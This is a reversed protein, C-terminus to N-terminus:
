RMAYDEVKLRHKILGFKRVIYYGSADVWDDVAGGKHEDQKEPKGHKDWGQVAFAHSLKPCKSKNIFYMDKSFMNNVSNIRDRVAGNIKPYNFSPAEPTRVEDKLIQIDTKSANSSDNDGSSDPYFEIEHDKYRKNIEIAIAYTDKPAFEEVAHPIGDREVHVTVGCGGVNFDLGIFLKEGRQIRERSNHRNADYFHYVKDTTLSVMKGRTFLNVLVSDYMEVIDDLYDPPLFPNDSTSAEILHYKGVRGNNILDYNGASDMTAKDICRNYLEWVYGETGYDPTTIVGITNAKGDPKRQRNRERIKKYVHKAKDPKMTDLEDIISDAVEYAVIKEPNAMSRFFIKGKTGARGWLEITKDTKNTNFPQNLRKLEKEVGSIGRDRILNYDPMYYAVDLAPYKFKLHLLRAIGADTKGSGLGGILAPYKADSLVFAVQHVLSAKKVNIKLPPKNLPATM